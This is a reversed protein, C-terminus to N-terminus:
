VGQTEPNQGTCMCMHTVEGLRRHKGCRSAEELRDVPQNPLQGLELSVAQSRLKTPCRDRDSRVDGFSEPAAGLPVEFTVKTNGRTRGRFDFCKEISGDNEIEHALLLRM